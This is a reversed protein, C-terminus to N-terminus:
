FFLNLKQYLSTSIVRTAQPPPPPIITDEPVFMVVMVVSGTLRVSGSLCVTVSDADSWVQMHVCSQIVPSPVETSRLPVAAKLTSITTM